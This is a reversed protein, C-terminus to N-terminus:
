REWARSPLTDRLAGGRLRVPSSPPYNALLAQRSANGLPAQSRCLAPTQETPRRTRQRSPIGYTKMGGVIISLAPPLPPRFSFEPIVVPPPPHNALMAQRSANGLPAQSRCFDWFKGTTGFYAYNGMRFICKANALYVQVNQRICIFKCIKVFHPLFKSYHRGVFRVPPHFSSAKPARIKGLSSYFRHNTKLAFQRRM